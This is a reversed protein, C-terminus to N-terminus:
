IRDRRGAGSANPTAFPTGELTSRVRATPFAWHGRIAATAHVIRVRPHTHSQQKRLHTGVMRISHHDQKCETRQDNRPNCSDRGLAPHPQNQLIRLGKSQFFILQGIVMSVRKSLSYRVALLRFCTKEGIRLPSFTLTKDTVLVPHVNLSLFATWLRANTAMVWSCTLLTRAGKGHFWRVEGKGDGSNKGADV